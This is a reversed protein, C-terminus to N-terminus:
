LCRDHLVVAVDKLADQFQAQLTEVTKPIKQITPVERQAVLPDNSARDFSSPEHPNGRDGVHRVGTLGAWDQEALVDVEKHTYQLLPIM